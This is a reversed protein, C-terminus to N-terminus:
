CYELKEMYIIYDSLFTREGQYYPIWMKELQTASLHIGDDDVVIQLGNMNDSSDSPKVSVKIRPDHRPHFKKSNEIREIMLCELASQSISICCDDLFEPIDFTVPMLDLSSATSILFEPLQRLKFYDGLHVLESAQTHRLVSAVSKELRVMAEQTWGILENLEQPDVAEAPQSTLLDLCSAMGHM